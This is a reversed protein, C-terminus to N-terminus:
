IVGTSLVLLVPIMLPLLPWAIIWAFGIVAAMMMSILATILVFFRVFFGVFRSILNDVSAKMKDNLAQDSTSISVIQKWPSFMTKVLIPVSFIEVLVKMRHGAQDLTGM